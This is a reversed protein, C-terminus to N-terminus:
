TNKFLNTLDNDTLHYLKISGDVMNTYDVRKLDDEYTMPVLMCDPKKEHYCLTLLNYGLVLKQRLIVPEDLETYLSVYWSNDRVHYDAELLYYDSKTGLIVDAKFRYQPFWDIFTLAPVNNTITM